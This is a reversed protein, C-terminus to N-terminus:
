LYSFFVPLFNMKWVAASAGVDIAFNFRLFALSITASFISQNHFSRTANPFNVNNTPMGPSPLPKAVISIADRTDVPPANGSQGLGHAGISTMTKEDSSEASSVSLGRNIAAFAFQSFTAITSVTVSTSPSRCNERSVSIRDSRAARTSFGCHRRTIM